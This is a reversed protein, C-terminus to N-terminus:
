KEGGKVTVQKEDTSNKLDFDVNEQITTLNYLEQETCPISEIPQSFALSLASSFAAPILNHVIKGIQCPPNESKVFSIFM